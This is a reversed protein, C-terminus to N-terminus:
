QTGSLKQFICKFHLLYMKELEFHVQTESLNSYAEIRARSKSYFTKLFGVDAM